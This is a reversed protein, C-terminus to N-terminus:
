KWVVLLIVVILAAFAVFASFVIELVSSDERPEWTFENGKRHRIRAKKRETAAKALKGEDADVHSLKDALDDLAAKTNDDVVVAAGNTEVPAVVALKAGCNYCYSTNERADVGCKACVSKETTGTM